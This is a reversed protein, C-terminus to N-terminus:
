FIVGIWIILLILWWYLVIALIIGILIMIIKDLM